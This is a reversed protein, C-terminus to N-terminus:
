YLNKEQKFYKKIYKNVVVVSRLEEVTLNEVDDRTLNSIAYLDAVTCNVVDDIPIINGIPDGNEDIGYQEIILENRYDVADVLNDFRYQKGELEVLFNAKQVRINSYGTYNDCRQNHAQLRKDAPRLKEITCDYYDGDRHDVTGDKLKDYDNYYHKIVEIHLVKSRGNVTIYPKGDAIYCNQNIFINYTELNLKIKVNEDNIPIIYGYKDDVNHKNNEIKELRKKDEIADRKNKFGELIKVAEDYDPTVKKWIEKDVSMKVTYSKNFTIGKPLVKNKPIIKYKEPIAEIGHLLVNHQEDITLLNNNEVIVGHIALTHYDYFIAADKATIFTKSIKCYINNITGTYTNHNIQRVGRYAGLNLNREYNASNASCTIERLNNSFCNSTHQDIHDIVYDDVHFYIDDNADIYFDGPKGYKIHPAGIKNDITLEIFKNPIPVKINFGQPNTYYWFNQNEPHPDYQNISRGSLMTIWIAKVPHTADNPKILQWSRREAEKGYITEHLSKKGSSLLYTNQINFTFEFIKIFDDYFIQGLGSMIMNLDFSPVFIIEIDNYKMGIFYRYRAQRNYMKYKLLIPNNTLTLDNYSTVINNKFQTNLDKESYVIDDDKKIVVHNNDDITVSFAEGFTLFITTLNVILQEEKIESELGLESYLLKHKDHWKCFDDNTKIKNTCPEMTQQVFGKCRKVHEGSYWCAFCYLGYNKAVARTCRVGDIVVICIQTSM